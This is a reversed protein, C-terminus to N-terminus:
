PYGQTPGRHNACRVSGGRPAYFARSSPADPLRPRTRAPAAALRYITIEPGPLVYSLPYYDFSWDFNFAVPRSGPRYPSVRYVVSANAALAHYYAIAGPVARPDAFARDRQTSGSM